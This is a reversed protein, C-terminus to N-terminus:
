IYKKFELLLFVCVFRWRGVVICKCGSAMQYHSRIIQSSRVTSHAQTGSALQHVSIRQLCEVIRSCARAERQALRLVREDAHMLNSSIDVMVDGLQSLCFLTLVCVCVCWVCWSVVSSCMTLQLYGVSACAYVPRIL